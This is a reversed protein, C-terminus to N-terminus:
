VPQRYGDYGVRPSEASGMTRDAIADLRFTDLTLNSHVTPWSGEVRLTIGIDDLRPSTVQRRRYPSEDGAM